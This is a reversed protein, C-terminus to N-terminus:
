LFFLLRSAASTYCTIAAKFTTIQSNLQQCETAQITLSEWIATKNTALNIQFSFISNEM